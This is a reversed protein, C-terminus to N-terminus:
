WKFTAEFRMLSKPESPSPTRQKRSSKPQSTSSSSGLSSDRRTKTRGSESKASRKLIARETPLATEFEEDAIERFKSTGAFWDKSVQSIHLDQISPASPSSPVEVNSIGVGRTESDDISPLVDEYLQQNSDLLKSNIQDTERYGEIWAEANAMEAMESPTLESPAICAKALEKRSGQLLVTSTETAQGLRYDFVKEEVLGLTEGELQVTEDLEPRARFKAQAKATCFEIYSLGPPPTTPSSAGPHTQQKEPM